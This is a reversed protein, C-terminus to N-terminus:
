RPRRLSEGGEGVERNGRALATVAIPRLKGAKEQAISSPLNDFMIQVQGALIDTTGAAPFPVVIRIPKTPYSAAGQAFACSAGLAGVSGVTGLALLFASFRLPFRM